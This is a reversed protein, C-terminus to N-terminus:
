SCNSGASPVIAGTADLDYSSTEERLLGQDVLDAESTPLDGTLAEYADIATELTQREVGCVQQNAVPVAQLGEDIQETM